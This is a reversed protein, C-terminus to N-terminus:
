KNLTLYIRTGEKRSKVAKEEKLEKIARDITRKKFYLLILSDVIEKRYKEEGELLKLIEKKIKKTIKVEERIEGKYEWRMLGNEEILDVSFPSNYKGQRLKGQTITFSIREPTEETKKVALLCDLGGLIASSGRLSQNISEKHHWGSFSEKRQHHSIVITIGKRTFERFYDILKQTENSDNENLSHIDRLSDFIVLKYGRYNCFDLLGKRQDNNDIKFGNMPMFEVLTVPPINLMKLRRQIETKSSEEDIYLVKAEKTEFKGFLSQNSGVCKALELLIWSKGCSPNGLLLSISGAPILKEVLFETEPLEMRLFNNVKVVEWGLPTLEEKKIEELWKEEM